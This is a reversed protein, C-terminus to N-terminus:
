RFGICKGEPGTSGLTSSEMYAQQAGTTVLPMPLFSTEFYIYGGSFIIVHSQARLFHPPNPFDGRQADDASSSADRAPGGLWNSLTGAGTSWRLQSGNRNSWDCTALDNDSGFDCIEIHLLL